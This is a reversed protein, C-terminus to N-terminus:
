NLGLHPWYFLFFISLQVYLPWIKDGKVLQQFADNRNEKKKLNVGRITSLSFWFLKIFFPFNEVGSINKEAEADKLIFKYVSSQLFLKM